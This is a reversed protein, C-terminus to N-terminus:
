RDKRCGLHQPKGQPTGTMIVDGAELTTGISFHAIIAAASHMMFQTSDEQFDQGNLRSAIKLNDPNILKPSVL